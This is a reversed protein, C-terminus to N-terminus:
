RARVAEYGRPRYPIYHYPIAKSGRKLRFVDLHTVVSERAVKNQCSVSITTKRKKPFGV